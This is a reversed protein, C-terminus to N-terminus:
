TFEEETVFPPVFSLYPKGKAKRERITTSSAITRKNEPIRPINHYTVKDGYKAGAKIYEVALINNPTQVMNAIDPRLVNLALTRSKAVSYGESLFGKLMTSMDNSESAMFEAVLSIDKLEETETGFCLTFEGLMSLTKLAGEAFYKAPALSYITPLELVIDAGAQIAWNARTYKDAVCIDGRETFSGSMVVAVIDAGTERKAKRIQKLHGNHFPNYEAIIAAIKM